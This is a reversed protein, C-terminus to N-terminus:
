ERIMKKLVNAVRGSDDGVLLRVLAVKDDYSNAMDLMDATIGPKSKPAAQRLRDKFDDVDDNSGAPTVAGEAPQDAAAQALPESEIGPAPAVTQGGGGASLLATGADVRPLEASKQLPKLIPRLVAAILVVLIAIILAGRSTLVIWNEMRKM